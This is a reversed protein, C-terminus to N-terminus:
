CVMVELNILNQKEVCRNADKIVCCRKCRNLKAFLSFFDLVSKLNQTIIKRIRFTVNTM